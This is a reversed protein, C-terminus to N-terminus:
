YRVLYLVIIGVVMSALGGFRLEREEFASLKLFLRRVGGPNVFPMVGEIVCVIALAALLDDWNVSV